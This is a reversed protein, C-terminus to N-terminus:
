TDRGSPRSSRPPRTWPRRVEGAAGRRRERRRDRLRRFGTAILADACERASTPTAGGQVIGFLAQDPAATRSGHVAGGLAVRAARRGDAIAEKPAGAPRPVPRPVDGHRRRAGGPDGRGARPDPRAARGDLHSRFTSATTTSRAGTAGPQVGPVRGLRDPDPRGLGHVRAPRGARRRGGRGAAPGPSLHQGPHMQAGPELLQDPTLGKVTAQTGVPMFAPTEMPGHATHLTAARAAGDTALVEFAGPQMPRLTTPNSPHSPLGEGREQQGDGDRGRRSRGLRRGAQPRRRDRGGGNREGPAVARAVLGAVVQPDARPPDAQAAVRVTRRDGAEPGVGAVDEAHAGAPAARAGREGRRQRPDRAIRAADARGDDAPTLHERGRARPVAVHPGIRDVAVGGGVDAPRQLAM